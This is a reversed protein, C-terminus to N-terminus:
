EKKFCHLIQMIEEESKGRNAFYTAVSHVQHQSARVQQERTYTSGDPNKKHEFGQIPHTINREIWVSIVRLVTEDPRKIQKKSQNNMVDLM